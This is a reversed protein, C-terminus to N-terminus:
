TLRFAVTLIADIEKPEGNEDLVPEYRWQRVVDLAAAALREDGQIAEPTGRKDKVAQLADIYKERFVKLSKAKTNIGAKVEIPVVEGDVDLLFEIESTTLEEPRIRPADAM